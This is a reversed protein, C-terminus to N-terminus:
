FGAVEVQLIPLPLLIHTPAGVPCTAWLIIFGVEQTETLSLHFVMYSHGPM